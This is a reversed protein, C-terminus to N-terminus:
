STRAQHPADRLTPAVIECSRCRPVKEGQGTENLRIDRQSPTIILRCATLVAWANGPDHFQREVILHEQEGAVRWEPARQNSVHVTSVTISSIRMATRHM